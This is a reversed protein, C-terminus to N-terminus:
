IIEMDTYIQSFSLSATIMVQELLEAVAREFEPCRVQDVPNRRQHSTMLSGYLDAAAMIEFENRNERFAQNTPAQDIDEDDCVSRIYIRESLVSEIEADTLSDIHIMSNDPMKVYAISDEGFADLPISDYPSKGVEQKSFINETEAWLTVSTRQVIYLQAVAARNHKCCHTLRQNLAKDRRAVTSCSGLQYMYWIAAKWDPSQFWMSGLPTDAYISEAGWSQANSRFWWTVDVGFSGSASNFTNQWNDYRNWTDIKDWRKNLACFYSPEQLTDEPIPTTKFALSGSVAPHITRHFAGENIRKLLGFSWLSNEGGMGALSAEGALVTGLDSLLLGGAGPTAMGIIAQNELNELNEYLGPIPMGPPVEIFRVFKWMSDCYSVIMGDYTNVACQWIEDEGFATQIHVSTAKDAAQGTPGICPGGLGIPGTVDYERSDTGFAPSVGWDEISDLHATYVDMTDQYTGNSAGESDLIMAFCLDQFFSLVPNGDVDYTNWWEDVSASGRIIDGQCDTKWSPTTGAIQIDDDGQPYEEFLDVGSLEVFQLFPKIKSVPCPFQLLEPSLDPDVISAAGGLAVDFVTCYENLNALPDNIDLPLLEDLSSRVIVYNYSCKKLGDKHGVVTVGSVIQLGTQATQMDCLLIAIDNENFGRAGSFISGNDRVPMDPSCHYFIPANNWSLGIEEIFVDATDWYEEPTDPDEPYVKLITGLLYEHKQIDGLNQHNISNSM